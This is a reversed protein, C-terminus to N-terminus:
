QASGGTGADNTDASLAADPIWSALYERVARDDGRGALAELERVCSSADFGDPLRALSQVIQDHQSATTEEGPAVLDEHLKEGPRLGTIRVEVDEGPRLGHLAILDRALEMIRIPRGMKLIYTEGGRGMLSAHVVLMSAERVSMFFRTAQEDSVTVALGERIQRIFLPVVSGRSGLVNGFRVNIYRTGGDEDASKMLYEAIRKTAGMVGRPNVAKDTSLMVVRGVGAARAAEIVNWTGVVNNKVAECPFAEMYHVHKHAAAHYVFDPAYEAFRRRLADADRVDAIVSAVNLNRYEDRIRQETDYIQNEGRGLLVLRALPFRGIQRCIEGGISGGAGTVLVTRGALKGAIWDMDFHVTERGLLDEPSADRVQELRVPGHIIELLGPVIRFPVGADRCRAIVRRVFARDASPVAIIVEDPAQARVVDPLDSCAGLVPVGDVHTGALAPDDDLMGVPAYEADARAAIERVLMRGAEGAGVILVRKTM